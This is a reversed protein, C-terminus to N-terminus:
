KKRHRRQRLRAPVGSAYCTNCYMARGARDFLKRCDPNACLRRERNLVRSALWGAFGTPQGFQEHESKLVNWRYDEYALQAKQVERDQSWVIGLATAEFLGDEGQEIKEALRGAMWARRSLELWTAVSEQVVNIFGLSQETDWSPQILHPQHCASWWASEIGTWGCTCFGLPGWARALREPGHSEDLDLFDQFLSEPPDAVPREYHATTTPVTVHQSVEVWSDIYSIWNDMRRVSEPRIWAGTVSDEPWYTVEVPLGSSNGLGTGAVVRWSGEPPRAIVGRTM